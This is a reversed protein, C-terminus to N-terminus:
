HVAYARPDLEYPLETLVEVGHEGVV